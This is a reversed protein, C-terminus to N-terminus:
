EGGQEGWALGREVLEETFGKDALCKRMKELAVKKRVNITSAAAGLRRGLARESEGEALGALVAREEATLSHSTRMRHLCDQVADLLESFHLAEEPLRSGYLADAVDDVSLRTEAPRGAARLHRLVMKYGIAYVFTTIRAREPDYRGGHLARWVEVWTMQSLEEVLEARGGVRRQIFRSLGGGLRRHLEEFAQEDGEM